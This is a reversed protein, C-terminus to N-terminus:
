GTKKKLPSAKMSGHTRHHVEGNCHSDLIRNQNATQSADGPEAVNITVMKATSPRLTIGNKHGIDLVCLFCFIIDIGCCLLVSLHRNFCLRIGLSM